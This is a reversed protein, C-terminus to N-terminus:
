HICIQLILWPPPPTLLPPDWSTLCVLLDLQIVFVHCLRVSISPLFHASWLLKPFTNQGAIVLSFYICNYMFEKNGNTFTNRVRTYTLLESVVKWTQEARVFSWICQPCHSRSKESDSSSGVIQHLLQLYPFLVALTFGSVGSQFWCHWHSCLKHHM